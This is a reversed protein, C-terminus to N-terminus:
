GYGKLRQESRSSVLPIPPIEVESFLHSLVNPTITM